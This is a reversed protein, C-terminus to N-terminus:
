KSAEALRKLASSLVMVVVVLFVAFTFLLYESTSFMNLISPGQAKKEEAPSTSGATGTAATAPTDAVKEAPPTAAATGKDKIYGLVSKIEDDKLMQDTMPMGNNEKFLRVAEADGAKVLTQSSKVWKLMWAEPHRDNVGILDPGVLKGKGISHCAACNAKFLKEGDQSYSGTSFLLCLAAAVMSIRTKM